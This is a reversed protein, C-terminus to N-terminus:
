RLLRGGSIRPPPWGAAGSPPPGAAGLPPPGAAGIPPPGAPGAFRRFRGRFGTGFRRGVLRRHRGIVPTGLFSYYSPVLWDYGPLVYSSYPTPVSVTVALPGNIYVSGGPDVSSMLGHHLGSLYARFLADETEGLTEPEPPAVPEAKAEPLAGKPLWVQEDVVVKAVEQSPVEAQLNTYHTVGANDTWEVIDASAFAPLSAVMAALVIHLGCKM